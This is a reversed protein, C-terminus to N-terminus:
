IKGLWRLIPFTICCIFLTTFLNTWMVNLALLIVCFILLITILDMWGFQPSPGLKPLPSSEKVVVSDQPEKQPVPSSHSSDPHPKAQECVDPQIMKTKNPSPRPQDDFMKSDIEDFDTEHEVVELSDVDEELSQECSHSLKDVLETISPLSEKTQMPVPFICLDWKSENRSSFIQFCM